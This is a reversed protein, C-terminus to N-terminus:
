SGAAVTGVPLTMLLEEDLFEGGIQTYFQIAGPNQRWVTWILRDANEDKALTQAERMLAEGVGASRWTERVFLDAVFLAKAAPDMWLGPFCILYGAVQGNEEAILLRGVADPEFLLSEVRAIEADSGSESDDIANLYDVFERMMQKLVPLDGKSGARIMM